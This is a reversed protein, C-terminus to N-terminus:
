HAGRAKGGTRIKAQDGSVKAKNILATEVAKQRSAAYAGPPPAPGPGAAAVAGAVGLAFAPLGGVPGPGLPHVAPMGGLAGAMGGVAGLAVPPLGGVAGHGPPLVPGVAPANVHQTATQFIDEVKGQVQGCPINRMRQWRQECQLTIDM